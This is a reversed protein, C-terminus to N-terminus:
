YEYPSRPLLFRWFLISYIKKTQSDGDDVRRPPEVSYSIQIGDVSEEIEANKPIDASFGDFDHNEYDVASVVSISALAVAILLIIHLKKLKM